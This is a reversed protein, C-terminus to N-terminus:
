LNWGNAPPCAAHQACAWFGEDTQQMAKRQCGNSAHSGAWTGSQAQAWTKAQCYHEGSM